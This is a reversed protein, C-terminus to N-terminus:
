EISYPVVEHLLHKQNFDVKIECKDDESISIIQRQIMEEVSFGRAEQQVGPMKQCIKKIETTSLAGMVSNKKPLHCDRAM